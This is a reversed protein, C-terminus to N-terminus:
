KHTIPNLIITNNEITFSITTKLYFDSNIGKKIFKKNILKDLLENLQKDNKDKFFNSNFNKNYSVQKILGNQDVIIDFAIFNFQILEIFNFILNKDQNIELLDIEPNESVCNKCQLLNLPTKFELINYNFDLTDITSFQKLNNQQANISIFLLLFFFNFIQKM